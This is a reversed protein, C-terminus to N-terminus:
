YCTIIEADSVDITGRFIVHPIFRWFLPIYDSGSAKLDKFYNVTAEPITTYRSLDNPSLIFEDASLTHPVTEPSFLYIGTNKRDLTDFPIKYFQQPQLKSFGLSNRVDYLLQPQLATMFIVDNWLCNEFIPIRQDIIYERGKYKKIAEDFLRRDIDKLAHLPYLTSGTMSRPVKHYLYTM